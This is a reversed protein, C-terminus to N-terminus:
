TYKDSLAENALQLENTLLNTAALKAKIRERVLVLIDKQSKLWAILAPNNMFLTEIEQANQFEPQDNGNLCYVLARWLIWRKRDVGLTVESTLQEKLEKFSEFYNDVPNLPYRYQKSIAEVKKYAYQHILLLTEKQYEKAASVTEGFTFLPHLIKAYALSNIKSFDAQTDILPFLQVAGLLTLENKLVPRGQEIKYQIHQCLLSLYDDKYDMIFQKNPSALLYDVLDTAVQYQADKKGHVCDSLARWLIGHLCAPLLDGKTFLAKIQVYPKFLFANNESNYPYKQNVAIEHLKRQALLILQILASTQEPETSSIEAHFKFLAYTAESFIVPNRVKAKEILYFIALAKDLKDDDLRLNAMKKKYTKNLRKLLPNMQLIEDWLEQHRNKLEHLALELELNYSVQPSIYIQAAECKMIYSIVLSAMEATLSRGMIMNWVAAEESSLTLIQSAQSGLVKSILALQNALQQQVFDSTKSAFSEGDAVRPLSKLLLGAHKESIECFSETSNKELHKLLSNMADIYLISNENTLAYLLKLARRIKCLTAELGEKHHMILTSLDNLDCKILLDIITELELELGLYIDRFHESRKSINEPLDRLDSIVTAYVSLINQGVQEIRVSIPWTEKYYGMQYQATISAGVNLKYKGQLTINTGFANLNADEIFKRSLDLEPLAQVSLIKIEKGVEEIQKALIKNIAELREAVDKNGQITQIEKPGHQKSEVVKAAQLIYNCGALQLRKLEFKPGNSRSRQAENQKSLEAPLTKSLDELSKLRERGPPTANIKECAIKVGVYWDFAQPFYESQCVTLLDACEKKQLFLNISQEWLRKILERQIKRDHLSAIHDFLLILAGAQKGIDQAIGDIQDTGRLQMTWQEFEKIVPHITDNHLISKFSHQRWNLKQFIEDLKKQTLGIANVIATMRTQVDSPKTYVGLPLVPAILPDSSESKRLPSGTASTLTM